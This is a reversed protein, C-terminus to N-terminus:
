FLGDEVLKSITNTAMSEGLDKFNAFANGRSRASSQWIQKGSAVAILSGSYEANPKKVTYGGTTYGPSQQVTVYSTNGLQNVTATTTGPHFTPPVYTSSVDKDLASVFLVSEVGSDIVARAWESDTLQRTPPTLDLGRLVRVGRKSLEASLKNEVAQREDLPLGLAYVAVSQFRGQGRFDPDTFSSVETRATCGAVLVVVTALVFRHLIGM